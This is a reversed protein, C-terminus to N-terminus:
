DRVNEGGSPASASPPHSSSPTYSPTGDEAQTKKAGAQMSRVARLALTIGTIVLLALYLWLLISNDWLIVEQPTLAGLAQLTPVFLWRGGFLLLWLVILIEGVPPPLVDPADDDPEPM